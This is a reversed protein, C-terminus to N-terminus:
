LLDDSSSEWEETLPKMIDEHYVVKGRYPAFLEEVSPRKPQLPVIKLVPRGHDTVILEDGSRELERFVGLMEAKLRSKSITKM